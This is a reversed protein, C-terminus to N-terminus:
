VESVTHISYWYTLKVPTLFGSEDLLSRDVPNLYVLYIERPAAALSGRINELVKRMVEARFPNYFYFIAPEHPIRYESADMCNLHFVNSMRTRRVYSKLNEAAVCILESSLEVGIIQKFPLEAALLLVKGKGCGFDIFVFKGYDV